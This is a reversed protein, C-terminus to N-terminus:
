RVEYGVMNITMDSGALSSVFCLFTDPSLTAISLDQNSLSLNEEVNSTVTAPASAWVTGIPGPSTAPPTPAASYTVGTIGITGASAATPNTETSTGGTPGSGELVAEGEETTGAAPIVSLSLQTVYDSYALNSAVCMNIGAITSPINESLVWISTNNGSQNFALQVPLANTGSIFNGNSSTLATNWFLSSNEGQGQSVPLPNASGVPSPVGSNVIWLVANEVKNITNAPVTFAYVCVSVLFLGIIFLSVKNKWLKKM